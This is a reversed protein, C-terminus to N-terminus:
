LRAPPRRRRRRRTAVGVIHAVATVVVVVAMGVPELDFTLANVARGDATEGASVWIRILGPIHVARATTFAWVFAGPLVVAVVALGLLIGTFADLVSQAVRRVERLVGPRFRHRAVSWGTLVPAGLASRAAPVPPSHLADDRTVRSEIEITTTFRIPSTERPGGASVEGAEEVM